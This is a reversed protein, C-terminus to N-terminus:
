FLVAGASWAVNYWGASIGFQFANEAVGITSAAGVATGAINTAVLLTTLKRGAFMFGTSSETRRKVYISIGFLVCIYLIIIVLQINM